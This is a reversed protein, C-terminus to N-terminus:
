DNKFLTISQCRWGETVLRYDIVMTVTSNRYISLREDRSRENNYGELEYGKGLVDEYYEPAEGIQLGGVFHTGIVEGNWELDAGSAVIAKVKYDKLVEFPAKDTRSNTYAWDDVLEGNETAEIFLNAETFGQAYFSIGLKEDLERGYFESLYLDYGWPGMDPDVKECIENVTLDDAINFVAGNVVFEGLLLDDGMKVGVAPVLANPDAPAPAPTSTETTSSEESSTTSSEIYSTSTALKDSSTDVPLSGGGNDNSTEKEGCATLSMAMMIATAIIAIRKKM